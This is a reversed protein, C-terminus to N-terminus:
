HIYVEVCPSNEETESYESILSNRVIGSDPADIDKCNRLETNLQTTM